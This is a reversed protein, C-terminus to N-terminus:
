LCLRKNNMPNIGMKYINLHINYFPQGFKILTEKQTEKKGRVKYSVKYSNGKSQYLSEIAMTVHRVALPYEDRVYVYGERAGIALAGIMMGELVRFPNGELVSRDMYAGPDGEDGNCIIYKPEGRAKRTAEWKIGTPFGAGGRGRLGSDKVTQIIEEPKMRTLAKLFPRFGGIALYDNLNTPDVFINDGLIVRGLIFNGFGGVLGDGVASQRAYFRRPASLLGGFFFGYEIPCVAWLAVPLAQLSKGATASAFRGNKEQQDQCRIRTIPTSVTPM